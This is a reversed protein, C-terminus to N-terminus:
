NKVEEVLDDMTESFGNIESIKNSLVSYEGVNLMKKLVQEAGMVGYSDQLGKDNLNPFVISAVMMKIALAENDIEMTYQNGKVKVRRTCERRIQESEEANLARLEWEYPNGNEDLFRKSLAFKVNDQKITNQAFFGKLDAM